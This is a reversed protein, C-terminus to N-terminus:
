RELKIYKGTAPDKLQRRHNAILNNLFASYPKQPESNFSSMESKEFKVREFRGNGYTVGKVVYPHLQLAIM